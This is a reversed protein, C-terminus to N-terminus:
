EGVIQVRVVRERERVADFDIFYVQGFEGLEPKGDIIPITESRGMICSRLHADTNLSWVAEEGLNEVAHALHEPGPHLYEGERRCKPIVTEFIDLLDHLLFKTGDLTADHSEEQIMVSCTTHQSYVMVIGSDINSRAVIGRVMDTVDHFSPKAPTKIVFAEYHVAMRKLEM